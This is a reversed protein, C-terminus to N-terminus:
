EEFYEKCGTVGGYGILHQGFDLVFVQKGIYLFTNFVVFQIKYLWKGNHQELIFKNFEELKKWHQVSDAMSLIPPLTVLVIKDTSEKLFDLVKAYSKKM